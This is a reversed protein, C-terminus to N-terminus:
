IYVDMRRYEVVGSSSPVVVIIQATRQASAATVPLSTHLIREEGDMILMLKSIIAGTEFVSTRMTYKHAESRAIRCEPRTHYEYPFTIM